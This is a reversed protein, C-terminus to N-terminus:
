RIMCANITGVDFVFDNHIPKHVTVLCDNVIELQRQVYSRYKQLMIMVIM